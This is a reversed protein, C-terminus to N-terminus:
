RKRNKHQFNKGKNNKHNTSSQGQSNRKRLLNKSESLVEESNRIDIKGHSLEFLHSFIVDDEVTDKNWNLFCKKM